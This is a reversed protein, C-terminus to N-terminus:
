CIRYGISKSYKEDLIQKCTLCSLHFVYGGTVTGGIIGTTAGSLTSDTATVVKGNALTVTAVVSTPVLTQGYEAGRVNTWYGDTVYNFTGLVDFIPSFQTGTDTSFKSTPSIIATDTQLLTTGSYLQSVISTAGVLTADTLNFVGKYGKIVSTNITEFQQAALSGPLIDSSSATTFTQTLGPNWIGNVESWAVFYYPTNATVAPMGTASSLSASFTTNATQAGLDVTSYVGTPITPSTTVFPALSVWFSSDTAASSGNTGNLTADASTIATAPNTTITTNVPFITSPDGTLNTNTATVIKGNALTVTAVVSTPVLTQGYEAGRVNTWYGDAAYDFTGFVDFPSSFQSGTIDANFKPIIATDTQLLTTGSYLQTVVSSAGALTADTFISSSPNTNSLGFGATYGKVNSVDMVGFDQAVLSTGLLIANGSTTSFSGTRAGGQYNDSWTGSILGGAAITGTLDLVTQPTVADATATYDAVINISNGSVSGSTITWTYVNAGAPSGGNGTLNGSNDQVLTMDHPNDTGNYTMDIVYSGTANWNPATPIPSAHATGIFALGFSGVTLALLTSMAITNKVLKLTKHM